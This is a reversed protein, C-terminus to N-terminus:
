SCHIRSFDKLVDSLKGACFFLNWFLTAYCKMQLFIDAVM